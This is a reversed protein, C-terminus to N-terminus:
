ACNRVHIFVCLQLTMSLAELKLECFDQGAGLMFAHQLNRIISCNHMERMRGQRCWTEQYLGASKVRGDDRM